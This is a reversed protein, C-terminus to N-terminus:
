VPAPSRTASPSADQEACWQAILGRYHAIFGEHEHAPFTDRVTDVLVRDLEPGRFFGVVVEDLHALHRACFSQYREMEFYADAMRRYAALKQYQDLESRDAVAFYRTTDQDVRMRRGTVLCFACWRLLARIAWPFYYHLSTIALDPSANAYDIPHVHGDRVLMECSNLEWRFFANVLRSVTVAQSGADADLFGHSVSYRDHLPRSPDYRMVMTEAGVSLSRVFVEYNEISAQLHMLRRGSDDYARHLEAPGAVRTVGVWAGGDFPKMYLPYGVRAAVEDLDFLQMYRAAMGSFRPNEAPPQKHPVIWTEPVELGLRIMACYATHKEMAQFTFPNNLLYVGDMLAVKKLWERPLDYWWGLRDIVLSYRPRARLNFPEITIRETALEHTEGRHRIRLGARRVLGEFAGPWDEEVGLLLGILHRTPM